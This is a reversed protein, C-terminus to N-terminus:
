GNEMCRCWRILVVCLTSSFKKTDSKEAARKGKAWDCASATLVKAERAIQGGKWTGVGTYRAKGLSGIGAVRNLFRLEIGTDPLLGKIACAAAKPIPKRQSPFGHLKEWFKEPHDLRSRAMTRLPSSSDVLVLPRGGAVLCARYGKVISACAANPDISMEGNETALTASVALRVLDNSFPLPHTEDFDNIGWVLRGDVDRWTGFNEVHLDGVALAAADRVLEPCIQPWLQAWRYYTARMFSFSDNRMGSHKHRLDRNLLPTQRSLWAEYSRTAEIINM